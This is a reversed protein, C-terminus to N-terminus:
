FDPVARLDSMFARDISEQSFCQNESMVFDNEYNKRYMMEGLSKRESALFEPSIRPCESAKAQVREWGEGYEWENWFFGRRGRPTSLMLLTGGSVARMPSVAEFMGDPCRAAEYIIILNPDSFEVINNPNGPLALIRSKNELELSHKLDRSPGPRGLANYAYVIKIFLEESQRETRSGILVLSRPFYLAQHLAKIATTTSKGIQRAALIAIKPSSSRLVRKQWPDPRPFGAREMLAVPDIMQWFDRCSAALDEDIEVMATTM